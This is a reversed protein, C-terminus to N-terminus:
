EGKNNIYGYQSLTDAIKHVTSIGNNLVSKMIEIIKTEDDSLTFSSVLNKYKRDGNLVLYISLTIERSFENGILEVMNICNGSLQTTYIEKSISSQNIYDVDMKSYLRIKLVNDITNRVRNFNTQHTVLEPVLNCIGNTSM